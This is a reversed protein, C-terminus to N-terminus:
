GNTVAITWLEQRVDPTMCIPAFLKFDRNDDRPCTPPGVVPGHIRAAM